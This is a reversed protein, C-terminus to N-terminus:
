KLRLIGLIELHPTHPFFDFPQIIEVTYSELFDPLNSFFTAPNCSSYAIVRPRIEKVRKRVKKSLGARPPNIVMIDIQDRFNERKELLVKRAEGSLFTVNTIKNLGAHLRAAEISTVEKEIGLVEKVRRALVLSVPGMGCYLDIVTEEGHPHLFELLKRYFIKIIFPNVQFFSFPSIQFTLDDLIEELYGRGRIVRFSEPIVANSFSDNETWILSVIEEETESSFILEALQNLNPSGRSTTVLNIMLQKTFKGERIILNRWFGTHRFVDYAPLGSERVFRHIDSVIAPISRSAILCEQLNFVERKRNQCHLGLRLEGGQDAFTFEMKNRYYFIRPSPIIPQLATDIEAEKRLKLCLEEKRRLQDAYPIDQLRCGGCLGFHRCLRSSHNAIEM